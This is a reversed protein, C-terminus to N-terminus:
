MKPVVIRLLLYGCSGRFWPLGCDACFADCTTGDEAPILVELRPPGRSPYFGSPSPSGSVAGGWRTGILPILHSSVTLLALATPEYAVEGFYTALARLELQRAVHAGFIELFGGGELLSALLHVSLSLTFPTRM